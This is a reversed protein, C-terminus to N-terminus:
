ILHGTIWTWLFLKIKLIGSTHEVLGPRMYLLMEVEEEHSEKRRGEQTKRKWAAEQSAADGGQLGPARRQLLILFM